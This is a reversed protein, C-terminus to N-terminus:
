RLENSYDRSYVTRSGQHGGEEVEEVVDGWKTQFLLWTYKLQDRLTLNNILPEQGSPIRYIAGASKLTGPEYVMYPPMVERPFIMRATLTEPPCTPTPKLLYKTM